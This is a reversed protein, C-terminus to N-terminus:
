ASDQTLRGRLAAARAAVFHRVRDTRAEALFWVAAAYALVVLTIIAALGVTGAGVSWPRGDLIWARLFILFSMHVVYLTYSFHAARRATRVYVGDAAPRRDHLLVYLGAAFTIGVVYDAVMISGDTLARAWGTHTLSVVGIVFVAVGINLATSRTSRLGPIQPLIRVLLGLLWIPFRLLITGGFHYALAVTAIGCLVRAPWRTTPWLALLAAPFMLYYAFEFTLSWLQGATGFSPMGSIAQLFGMNAFFVSPTLRDQVRFFDHIWPQPEGTYAPHNPFLHLGLADWFLTLLLGPVLVVYLRTLRHLLYRGWSWRNARLDKLITGSILYGSLVFFVMVADHGFSTAIYFLLSFPTHIGAQSYDLFFNYRVHYVVVALAAAGRVADLHTTAYRPVTLAVEPSITGAGVVPSRNVALAPLM